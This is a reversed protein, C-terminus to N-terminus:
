DSDASADYRNRQLVDGPRVTLVAMGWGTRVPERLKGRSMSTSKRIWQPLLIREWLSTSPDSRSTISCFPSFFPIKSLNFQFHWLIEKGDAKGRDRCYFGSPCTECSGQGPQRQYSGPLCATQRVSGQLLLKISKMLSLIQLTINMTLCLWPAVIHLSLTLFFLFYVYISLLQHTVSSENLSM